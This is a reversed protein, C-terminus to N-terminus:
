DLSESASGPLNQAADALEDLKADIEYSDASAAYMEQLDKATRQLKTYMLKQPGVTNEAYATLSEMLVPLEEAGLVPDEKAKAVFDMVQQKALVGVEDKSLPPAESEGCGAVLVVLLAAALKRM